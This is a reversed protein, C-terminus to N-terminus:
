DQCIELRKQTKANQVIKKRKEFFDPKPTSKTWGRIADTSSDAKTSLHKTERMRSKQLINIVTRDGHLILMKALGWKVNGLM